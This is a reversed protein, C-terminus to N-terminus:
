WHLRSFRKRGQSMVTCGDDLLGSRAAAEQV